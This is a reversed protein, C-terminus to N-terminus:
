KLLILSHAILSHAFSRILSHAFSRIGLGPELLGGPCVLDSIIVRIWHRCVKGQERYHLLLQSAESQGVLGELSAPIHYHSGDGFIANGGGVPM